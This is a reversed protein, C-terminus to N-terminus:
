HEFNPLASLSCSSHGMRSGSWCPGAVSDCSESWANVPRYASMINHACVVKDCWTRRTDGLPLNIIGRSSSAGTTAVPSNRASISSVSTAPPSERINQYAFPPQMTHTNKAIAECFPRPRETHLHPGCTCQKFSQRLFNGTSASLFLIRRIRRIRNVDLLVSGHCVKSQGPVRHLDECASLPTIKATDCRILQTHHAYTRM